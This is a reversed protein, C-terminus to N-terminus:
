SNTMMKKPSQVLLKFIFIRELNFLNWWALNGLNDTKRFDGLSLLCGWVLRM